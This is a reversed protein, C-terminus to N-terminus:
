CSQMLYSQGLITTNYLYFTNYKRWYIGQINNNKYLGDVGDGM